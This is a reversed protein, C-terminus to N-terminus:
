LPISEYFQQFQYDTFKERSREICEVVSRARARGNDLTFAEAGSAAGAARERTDAQVLVLGMRGDVTVVRCAYEGVPMDASAASACAALLVAAGIRLTRIWKPLAM